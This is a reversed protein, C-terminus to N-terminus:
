LPSPNPSSFACMASKMDHHHSFLLPPLRNIMLRSFNFQLHCSACDPAQHQHHCDGEQYCIYQSSMLNFLPPPVIRLVPVRVGCHHVHSRRSIVLEVNCQPHHHPRKGFELNLGVADDDGGRINRVLPDLCHVHSRGEVRTEM